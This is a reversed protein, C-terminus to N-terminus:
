GNGGNGCWSHFFLNRVSYRIYRNKIECYSPTIVSASAVYVKVRRAKPPQYCETPLLSDGVSVALVSLSGAAFILYRKM